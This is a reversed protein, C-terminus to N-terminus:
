LARLAGLKKFIGTASVLLRGAGGGEPAAELISVDVEVSSKAVGPQSGEKVEVVSSRVVLPTGPPAPEKYSVLISATLTLPPAPLGGRDMLAIAATWNGHCDMITSLVGGNVIGPFACFRPPITITSELGNKIRFSRLRLGDEALPGCGWCTSNPTYAEQVPLVETGDPELGAEAAPHHESNCPNIAHGQEKLAEWRKRETGSQSLGRAAAWLAPAGAGARAAAPWAAPAQAPAGGVGAAASRLAAALLAGAARRSPQM